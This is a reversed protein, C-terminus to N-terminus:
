KAYHEGLEMWATAFSSSGTKIYKDLGGHIVGEEQFKQEQRTKKWLHGSKLKKHRQGSLQCLSEQIIKWFWMPKTMFFPLTKVVPILLYPSCVFGLLILLIMQPSGHWSNPQDEVSIDLLVSCTTWPPVTFESQNLNTNVMFYSCLQHESQDM